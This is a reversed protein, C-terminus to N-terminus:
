TESLEFSVTLGEDNEPIALVVELNGCTCSLLRLENPMKSIAHESQPYCIRTATLETLLNVATVYDFKNFIIKKENFNSVKQVFDNGIIQDFRLSWILPFLNAFVQTRAFM